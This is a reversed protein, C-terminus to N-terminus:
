SQPIRRLVEGCYRCATPPACPNHVSMDAVSRECNPCASVVGHGCRDCFPPVEADPADGYVEPCDANSCIARYPVDAM